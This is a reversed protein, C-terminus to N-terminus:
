IAYTDSRKARRHQSDDRALAALRPIQVNRGSTHRLVLSHLAMDTLRRNKAPSTIANTEARIACACDAPEGRGTSIGPTLARSSTALRARRPSLRTMRNTRWLSVSERIM